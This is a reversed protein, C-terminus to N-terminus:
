LAAWEARWQDDKEALSRAEQVILNNLSQALGNAEDIRALWRRASAETPKLKHIREATAASDWSMAVLARLQELNCITM